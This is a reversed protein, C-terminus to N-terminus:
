GKDNHCVVQGTLTTKNKDSDMILPYYRNPKNGKAEDSNREVVIWETEELNKIAKLVSDKSASIANKLTTISPWCCDNDGYCMSCLKSYLAKGYVSVKEDDFIDGHIIGYGM